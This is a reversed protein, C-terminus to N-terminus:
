RRMGGRARLYWRQLFKVDNAARHLPLEGLDQRALAEAADRRSSDVVGASALLTEFEGFKFTPETRAAQYLQELWTLDYMGGDFYLTEGVLDQNMASAVEAPAVGESDLLERTIRHLAASGEDWYDGWAPDRRILHSRIEGTPLSWAVEIPYSEPALGSAEFDGICPTRSFPPSKSSM